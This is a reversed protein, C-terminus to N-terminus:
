RVERAHPLERGTAAPGADAPLPVVARAQGDLSVSEQMM